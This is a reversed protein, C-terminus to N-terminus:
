IGQIWHCHMNLAVIRSYGMMSTNRQIHRNDSIVTCTGAGYGYGKLGFNKGHCGKCYIEGTSSPFITISTTRTVSMFFLCKKQWTYRLM